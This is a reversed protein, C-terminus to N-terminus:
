HQGNLKELAVIRQELEDTEIIKSVNCLAALLSAGVDPPVSGDGIANIIAQAKETLTQASKLDPIDIPAATAKQAPLTRELLLRLATTDGTLAQKKTVRLLEPLDALLQERMVTYRSKAGKPKGSPNGSKGPLYKTM